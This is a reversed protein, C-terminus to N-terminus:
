EVGIGNERPRPKYNETGAFRELLGTGEALELIRPVKESPVRQALFMKLQQGTVPTKAGSLKWSSMAYFYLEEMVQADSKGVMARFIDPMVAEADLLWQRALELDSKSIQEPPRAGRSIAAILGLKILHQGRRRSYHELKSHSPRSGDAGRAFENVLAQADGAIEMTGHAMSLAALSDLLKARTAPTRNGLAFLDGDFEDSSYVMVFRSMLGTSWAGDPFTEAMMGPQTGGIINLQPRVIHVLQAKGYRLKELWDERNQYLATLKSLFEADWKPILVQLEEAVMLLSAYEMAPSGNLLKVSKAEAIADVLSAQSMRMPAVHFAKAKSQPELVASWIEHLEDLIQKGVGPPAVLLTYLNAYAARAGVPVWVRRELAGGVLALGTWLKFIEPSAIPEVYDLWQAILDESM